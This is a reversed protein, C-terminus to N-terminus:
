QGSNLRVIRGAPLGNFNVFAGAVLIKADAQLRVRWVGGGSPGEGCNFSADLTGDANLRAVYNRASGGATFFTGGTVIKGNPELAISRVGGDDGIVSKFTSDVGGNPKLRVIRKRNEGSFTSFNGGVLITQDDLLLVTMITADAGSGANFTEDLTGDTNLRAIRGEQVGNFRSFDGAIIIKGDKQPTVSWVINNAGTGPNFSADRTGSQNFRTVGAHGRGGASDFSGAALVKGDSQLAIARVDRNLAARADFSIDLSGDAKLRAIRRRVTGSIRQFDGGVLIRGDPQLAVAHVSGSIEANFNTELRGNTALRALGKMPVGDFTSFRGAVIIKGDAQIAMTRIDNGAGSGANFSADVSGAPQAPKRAAKPLLSLLAILGVLLVAAIVIVLPERIVRRLKDIKTSDTVADLQEIPL